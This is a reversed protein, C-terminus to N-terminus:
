LDLEGSHAHYGSLVLDTAADPEWGRAVYAEACAGLATRACLAVWAPALPDDGTPAVCLARAARLLAATVARAADSVGDPVTARSMEARMCEGWYELVDATRPDARDPTGAAAWRGAADIAMRPVDHAECGAERADELARWAVACAARLAPAVRLDTPDAPLPTTRARDM